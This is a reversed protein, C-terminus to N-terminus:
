LVQCSGLLHLQILVCTGGLTQQAADTDHLALQLLGLPLFLCELHAYATSSTM